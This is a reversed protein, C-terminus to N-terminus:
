KNPKKGKQIEYLNKIRQLTDADKIGKEPRLGIFRPFRLAWGSEYTPSKQIEEYAVEVVVEPKIKVKNGEKSIINKKLKKTMDKLTVDEPESKKEKIGTGLMGCSLFKGTAPNRCGLIYSGLLGTRKGTGWAAGTIVLDLNEMIPKVKLWGGAVRRGCVYKADLNKIMVGEQGDSLARDYFKKAKKPDDTKIRDVLKFHEKPEFTKKLIQFREKLSTDFFKKGNLYIIDFLNVEVPIKKISEQIKYKRKIRTSLKQFPLPRGTKPDLGIAEGEIIINRKKICDRCLKVLDPFADTVDELRRTFIAIDDDEKHIQIRMGDYKYEIVFNDYAEMATELDPSKEALLMMVPTGLTIKTKELGEKGSKKAVRAVEGYDPKLFWAGEVTKKPVEFAEAISDRVIGEAVGIRLTQLAIRVIYKAERPKAQSLLGAILNLKRNQSGSGEQTAISQITKFVHTITLEKNGLTRQKKNRAFREATLGLDGTERFKSRIKASKVGASRSIAKVMLKNAVGLDEESWMPFVKGTLMTVVNPLLDAPTKRLFGAILETKKLKSPTKELKQYLDALESYKM